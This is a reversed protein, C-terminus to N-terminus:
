SAPYFSRPRYRYASVRHKPLVYYEKIGLSSLTNEKEEETLLLSASRGSLKAKMDFSFTLVAPIYNSSLCEDILVKHGLHIGDFFGIVIARNNLSLDTHIDIQKKIM